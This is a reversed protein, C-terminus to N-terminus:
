IAGGRFIGVRFVQIHHPRADSAVQQSQGADFSMHWPWCTRRWLHLIIMMQWIRVFSTYDKLASSRSTWLLGSIFEWYKMWFPPRLCSNPHVWQVLVLGKLVPSAVSFSLLLILTRTKNLNLRQADFLCVFITWTRLLWWLKWFWRSVAIKFTQNDKQM